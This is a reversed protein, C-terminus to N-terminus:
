LAHVNEQDRQLEAAAVDYTETLALIGADLDDIPLTTM